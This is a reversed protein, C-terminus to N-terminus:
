TQFAASFVKKSYKNVNTQQQQKREPSPSLCVSADPYSRGETRFKVRERQTGRPRRREPLSKLCGVPIRLLNLSLPARDGTM